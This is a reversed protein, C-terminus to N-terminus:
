TRSGIGGESHTLLITCVLFPVAGPSPPSVVSIIADNSGEQESISHRATFRISCDRRTERSKFRRAILGIGFSDPFESTALDLGIASSEIHPLSNQTMMTRLALSKMKPSACRSSYGCRCLKTFPLPVTSGRIM